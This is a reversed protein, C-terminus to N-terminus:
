RAWPEGGCRRWRTTSAHIRASAYWSKVRWVTVRSVSPPVMPGSDDM